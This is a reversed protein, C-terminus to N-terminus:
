IRQGNSPNIDETISKYFGTEYEPYLDRIWYIVSLM